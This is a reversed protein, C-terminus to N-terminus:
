CEATLVHSKILGSENIASARLTIVASTIIYVVLIAAGNFAIIAAQLLNTKKDASPGYFSM